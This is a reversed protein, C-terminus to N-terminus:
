KGGVSRILADIPPLIEEEDEDDEDDEDDGYYHHHHYYHHHEETYVDPKHVLEKIVRSCGWMFVVALAGNVLVTTTELDV